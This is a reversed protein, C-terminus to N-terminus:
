CDELDNNTTTSRYLDVEFGETEINECNLNMPIYVNKNKLQSIGACLKARNIESDYLITFYENSYVNNEFQIDEDIDDLLIDNVIMKKEQKMKIPVLTTENNKFEFVEISYNDKEQFGELDQLFVMLEGEKLKVYSGDPKKLNQM